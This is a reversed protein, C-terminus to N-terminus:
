KQILGFWDVVDGLLDFTRDTKVDRPSPPQLEQAYGGRAALTPWELVKMDENELRSTFPSGLIRSPSSEELIVCHRTKRVSDLVTNADVPHLTRLDIVEAQVGLDALLQAVHLAINVMLNYSLFTLDSGSRRIYAKGLPVEYYEKIPVNGRSAYLLSDEVYLVPSQERFGSRLLGLADFPTGPIM